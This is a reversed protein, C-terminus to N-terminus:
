FHSLWPSINQIGKMYIIQNQHVKLNNNKWNHKIKTHWYLKVKSYWYKLGLVHNNCWNVDKWSDQVMYWVHPKDIQVVCTNPTNEQHSRTIAILVRFRSLNSTISYLYSESCHKKFSYIYFLDLNTESM